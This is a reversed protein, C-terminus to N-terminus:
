SVLRPGSMGLVRRALAAQVGDEIFLSAVVHDTASAIGDRRAATVIECWEMGTSTSTRERLDNWREGVFSGVDDAASVAERLVGEAVRQLVLPLWLLASKPDELATHPCTEPHFVVSPGEVDMECQVPLADEDETAKFTLFSWGAIFSPTFTDSSSVLDDAALSNTFPM